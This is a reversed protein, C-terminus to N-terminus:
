LRFFGGIYLRDRARTMAVYLLRKHEARERDQQVQQYKKGHQSNDDSKPRYLMGGQPGVMLPVRAGGTKASPRCTDAMFVISAELGKAGHVTMIRVADLGQEMDRKVEAEVNELWSLFGQLNPPNQREYDLALSLLEDVPDDVEQGLRAILDRRGGDASLVHSFFEFPASQNAMACLM